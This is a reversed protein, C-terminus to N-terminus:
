RCQSFLWNVLEPETFARESCADHGTARYEWYRFKQNGAAKLTDAMRRTHELGIVTDADGHFTWIALNKMGAGQAPDGGGCVPIIAAFLDPRRSALDWAGFGGMSQGVLYIRERDLPLKQCLSEILVLVRKANESPESTMPDISKWDGNEWHRGGSWPAVVFCPHAQQTAPDLWRGISESNFDIINELRREAGAHHLVVVLPLKQGPRLAVANPQYLFYRLSDGIGTGSSLSELTHKTTAPLERLKTLLVKRAADDEATPLNRYSIEAHSIATTLIPILLRRMM